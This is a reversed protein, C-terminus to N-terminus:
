GKGEKGRSSPLTAEGLPPYCEAVLEALHVVKQPLRNRGLMDELQMMCSPCSTVVLDAGSAAICGAKRRGIAKSLDYHSLSFTGAGGCCRDAEQMEVFDVQPLAELVRRPAEKIGQGRNLHCPDHYTVKTAAALCKGFRLKSHKALFESFDYVQAGLDGAKLGLIKEYDQKLAAGCAACGTIIADVKHKRFADINKRALARGTEVDGATYVPVGCCGQDHPIV